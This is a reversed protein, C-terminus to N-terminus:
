EDSKREYHEMIRSLRLLQEGFKSSDPEYIWLLCGPAIEKLYGPPRNGSSRFEEELKRLKRKDM